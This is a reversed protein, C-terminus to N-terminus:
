NQTMVSDVISKAGSETRLNMTIVDKGHPETWSGFTVGTGQTTYPITSGDIVVYTKTITYKVDFASRMQEMRITSDNKVYGVKTYDSVINQPAGSKEMAKDVDMGNFLKPSLVFGKALENRIATMANAAKDSSEAAISSAKAASISEAKSESIATAKEGSEKKMSEKKSSERKMSEKKSSNEKEKLMSSSKAESSSSDKSTSESKGCAALSLLVVTTGLVTLVKKM